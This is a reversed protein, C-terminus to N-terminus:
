CSDYLARVGDSLAGICGAGYHVSQTEPDHLALSMEIMTLTEFFFVFFVQPIGPLLSHFTEILNQTQM